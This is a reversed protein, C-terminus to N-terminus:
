PRGPGGCTKGVRREDSRPEPALFPLAFACAAAAVATRAARRVVSSSMTASRVRRITPFVDRGHTTACTCLNTATGRCARGNGSVGPPRSGSHQVFGLHSGGDFRDARGDLGVGAVDEQAAHVAVGTHDLDLQYTRAYAAGGGGDRELRADLPDQLVADVADGLHYVDARRDEALRGDGQLEPEPPDAPVVTQASM